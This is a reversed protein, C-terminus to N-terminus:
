SLYHPKAYESLFEFLGIVALMQVKGSYPVGAFAAWADKSEGLSAFTTGDLSIAGPFLPFGSSTYAIGVSALMAVRGHKIESARFWALTKDSGLEALGLPDFVKNATEPGVGPMDKLAMRVPTAAPAVASRSALPASAFALSSAAFSLAM